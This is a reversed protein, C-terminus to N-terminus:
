FWMAQYVFPSIFLGAHKLPRGAVREFLEKAVAADQDDFRLREGGPAFLSMSIQRYTGVGDAHFRTFIVRVGGELDILNERPPIRVATPSLTKSPVDLREVHERIAKVLEARRGEDTTIVSM